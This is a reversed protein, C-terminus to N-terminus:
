FQAFQVLGNQRHAAHDIRGDAVGDLRQQGNVDGLGLRDNGSVGLNVAEAKVNLLAGVDNQSRLLWHGAIQPRHDGGHMHGNFQLADAVVGGANGAVAWGAPVQVAEPACLGFDDDGQWIGDHWQYRASYVEDMRADLLATVVATSQGNLATFRAEEALALLSDVPLVPVNAGFALGQAVSCATRLGTFSGPGCGFCIADLQDLRLGAQLLLDLVAPILDTSAKAGGTANHQWLRVQGQETRAVAVSMVETGTDFALLNMTEVDGIAM